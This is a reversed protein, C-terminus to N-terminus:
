NLAGPFDRLAKIIRFNFMVKKIHLFGVTKQVYFFHFREGYYYLLGIVSNFRDVEPLFIRSVLRDLQAPQADLSFASVSACTSRGRSFM